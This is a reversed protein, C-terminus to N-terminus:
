IKIIHVEKGQTRAYRITYATGGKERGDHVAIVLGSQDVLYRNRIFFCSPSYTECLVTVGDCAALLNQFAPAKYKLRGANPIAAELTVPWGQEKLGAVIAAFTLDVGDAFGSIFRGYGQTVAAEVAKKLERDVYERKDEPIVRHGTVCCTKEM